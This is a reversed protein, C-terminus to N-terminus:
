PLQHPAAAERMKAARSPTVSPLLVASRSLFVRCVYTKNRVCGLGDMGITPPAHVRMRDLALHPRHTCSSICIGSRAGAWARCVALRAVDTSVFAASPADRVRLVTHGSLCDRGCEGRRLSSSSYSVRFPCGNNRELGCRSSFPLSRSLALSLALSLSLGLSLCPM